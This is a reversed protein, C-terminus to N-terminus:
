KLRRGKMDLIEASVANKIQGQGPKVNKIEFSQNTVIDRVIIKEGDFSLLEIGTLASIDTVGQIFLQLRKTVTAQETM